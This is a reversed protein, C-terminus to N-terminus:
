SASGGSHLLRAGAVKMPVRYVSRSATVYLTRRDPGGFCMNSAAEPTEITGLHEGAPDLVWV